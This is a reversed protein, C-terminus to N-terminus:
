KKIIAKAVKKKGNTGIVTIQTKTNTFEYDTCGLHGLQGMAESLTNFKFTTM